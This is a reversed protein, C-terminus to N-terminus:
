MYAKVNMKRAYHFLYLSAYGSWNEFKQQIFKRVNERSVNCGKFYWTQVIRKVWVDVPAAEMFGLGYLLFCDAVKPGVGPITLLIERADEYRKRSLSNLAVEGEAVMQAAKVIYNARYGVQCAMLANVSTNALREPNPFTHFLTGDPLIIQEGYFKKILQIMKNWKSVTTNQSCISCILSEFNNSARVVRLGPFCNFAVSIKDDKFKSYFENLPDKLGLIHLLHTHIVEKTNFSIPKSGKLIVSLSPRDVPKVQYVEYKVYQEPTRIANWFGEKIAEWRPGSTQGSLVTELLNFPGNIEEPKIQIETNM